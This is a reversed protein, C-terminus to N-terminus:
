NLKDNNAFSDKLKQLLKKQEKNLDRPTEVFVRVLLDGRSRGQLNPMGKGKIKIKSGTQIGPPLDIKEMGKPTKVQIKGGLAASFINVREEVILDLGERHYREDEPLHLHVYLDGPPGGHVGKEGEGRLCLQMGDEVGAPIKVKLQKIKEEQGSGNCHECLKELVQGQGGCSGCTTSISIFGQNHLLQGSGGCHPCPKPEVGQPAGRGGCAECEELRPIKIKKEIGEYSEMFSIQLNYRLDRGMRPRRSTRRTAGFGFFDEFIDSFHSFIDGIDSYGHHMGQRDLGEHGFQDYIARKHSDSLVEYAESAEKFLGEAEPTNNRDPHFELARKRYATKIEQTSAQRSIGLIDYYCRKM